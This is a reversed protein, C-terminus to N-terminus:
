GKIFVEFQDIDEDEKVKILSLIIKEGDLTATISARRSAEFQVMFRQPTIVQACLGESKNVTKFKILVQEPYSESISVDWELLDCPTPMDIEGAVTHVRAKIQHKATVVREKSSGGIDLDVRIEDLVTDANRNKYEWSAIFIGGIILLSAVIISIIIINNKKEDM